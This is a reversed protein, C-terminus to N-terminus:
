PRSRRPRNAREDNNGTIVVSKSKKLPPSALSLKPAAPLGPAAAASADDAGDDDELNFTPIGGREAM